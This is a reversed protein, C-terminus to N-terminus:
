RIKRQENTRLILQKKADVFQWVERPEARLSMGNKLVYKGEDNVRYRQREGDENLVYEPKYQIINEYMSLPAPDLASETRGAKGVVTEVEPISAVAM